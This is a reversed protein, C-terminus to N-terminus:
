PMRSVSPLLSGGTEIEWTEIRGDYGAALALMLSDAYDSSRGLRKKMEDKSEVKIQGKGTYSFKPATLDEVLKRDNPLEGEDRIWERLQWWLESRRNFFREREVASESVNIGQVPAGRRRLLDTEGGGVGIDDGGIREVG